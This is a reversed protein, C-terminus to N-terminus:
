KQREAERDRQRETEGDQDIMAEIKTGGDQDTERETQKKGVGGQRRGRLETHNERIFLVDFPEHVSALSPYFARLVKIIFIQLNYNSM